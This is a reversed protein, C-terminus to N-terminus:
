WPLKGHDKMHQRVRADADRRAIPDTSSLNSKVEDWSMKGSNAAAHGGPDGPQPSRTRAFFVGYEPDTKAADIWSNLEPREQMELYSAALFDRARGPVGHAALEATIRSKEYASKTTLLEQELAKTREEAARQAATLAEQYKGQQELNKREEAQKQLNSADELARLRDALQAKEARESELQKLVGRFAPTERPDLKEPEAVKSTSEDM